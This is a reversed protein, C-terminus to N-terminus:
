PRPAAMAQAEERAKGATESLRLGDGAALSIKQRVQWVGKGFMVLTRSASSLKCVVTSTNGGGGM